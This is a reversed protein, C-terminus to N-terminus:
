PALVVDAGAAKVLAEAAAADTAYRPQAFAAGQVALIRDAGAGALADAAAQSTRESWASRFRVWNGRRPSPRSPPKRM